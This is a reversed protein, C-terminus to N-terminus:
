FIKEIYMCAKPLISPNGGAKGYLRGWGGSTCASPQDYFVYFSDDIGWEYAGATFPPTKLKINFDKFDERALEVIKRVVYDREEPTLRFASGTFGALGSTDAYETISPFSSDGGFNMNVLTPLPPQGVAPSSM